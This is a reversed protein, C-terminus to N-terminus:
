GGGGGGGAGMGDSVGPSSPACLPSDAGAGSSGGAGSRSSVDITASVSLDGLSVLMLPRSGTARLDSTVSLIDATIACVEGADTTIIQSCDSASDTNLTGGLM